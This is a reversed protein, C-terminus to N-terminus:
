KESLVNAINIKSKQSIEKNVSTFMSAMSSDRSQQVNSSSFMSKEEQLVKVVAEFLENEDAYDKEMERYKDM